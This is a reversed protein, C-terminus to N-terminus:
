WAAALAEPTRYRQVPWPETMQVLAHLAADAAAKRFEPGSRERRGVREVSQAPTDGHHQFPHHGFAAIALVVGLSFQDARWDILDKENRLQEPPSFLPTGPGQAFWSQTLSSASLDRVLGFDVIVPSGNSRLVINDPKLDRHVLELRAIHGLADVLPRALARVESPALLGRSLRASLTGGPIFEEVTYLYRDPGSAHDAVKILRCINPHSCRRMAEIERSARAASLGPRYVKLAYTAGAATAQFTEKFAGVGVAAVFSYGELRCIERAQGELTIVPM